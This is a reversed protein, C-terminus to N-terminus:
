IDGIMNACKVTFDLTRNLGSGTIFHSHFISDGAAIYLVKKKSIEIVSSIKIAHRIWISFVDISVIMEQYTSKKTTAVSYLFNRATNDKIGKLVITFETFTFNKKKLSNLYLLDCNNVIDIDYKNVFTLTSDNLHLSISGYYQNKLFTKNQKLRYVDMTVINKETDIVLKKNIKTNFHKFRNLWKSDVKTIADHKLRGGTCDFVVKFNGKNIINKYENWDYDQYIIPINYNTIATCYLIYELMFINVFISNDTNEQKNWCYLKPIILNLYQSSTAFPRQRTYPKRFGPRDVRNDYVVVNVKKTRNMSRNYYLTLYCALFLGVPGSGIIMINVTDEKKITRYLKLENKITSELLHQSMFSVLKLIKNWNMVTNIEIMLENIKNKNLMKYIPTTTTGEVTNNPSYKVTHKTYQKMHTIYNKALKDVNLLDEFFPHIQNNFLNQFSLNIKDSIQEM